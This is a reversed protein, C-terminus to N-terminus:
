VSVTYTPLTECPRAHIMSFVGKGPCNGKELILYESGCKISYTDNANTNTRTSGPPTVKVGNEDTQKWESWDTWTVDSSFSLADNYRFGLGAGLSMPYATEFHNRIRLNTEYLLRGMELRESKTETIRDMGATYPTKYVAGFTLRKDEKEWVDWLVGVAANVAQFNKYTKDINSTETFSKTGWHGDDILKYTEKWAYNDFFEDTYFNVAVGLALKPMILGSLAPTLAGVGGQSNFVTDSNLRYPKNGFVAEESQKYRIDPISTM